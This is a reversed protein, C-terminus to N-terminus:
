TEAMSHHAAPRQLAHRWCCLSRDKHLFAKMWEDKEAPAKKILWAHRGCMGAPSAAM